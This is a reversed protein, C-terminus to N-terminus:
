AVKLEEFRIGLPEPRRLGLAWDVFRENAITLGTGDKLSFLDPVEPGSVSRADLVLEWGPPPPKVPRVGCTSCPPGEPLRCSQHRLGHHELQVALLETKTKVHTIPCLKIGGKGSMVGPRVVVPNSDQMHFLGFHGRATGRLSGFGAMPKLVADRPAHPRVLERLRLFEERPVHVVREFLKLDAAPLSSLDVCPYRGSSGGEPHRGCEPCLTIPPLFWRHTANLDADTEDGPMVLYLKM